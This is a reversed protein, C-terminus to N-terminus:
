NRQATIHQATARMITSTKAESVYGPEVVSREKSGSPCYYEAGGCVQQRARTSGEGCFYGEECVGECDGAAGVGGFKGAPCFECNFDALSKGNRGGPVSFKGAPCGLALSAHGQNQTDTVNSRMDKDSYVGPGFCGIVYPFQTQTFYAYSGDDTYKGGCSDLGTHEEGDEDFPSYIPYGDLAFGVVFPAGPLSKIPKTISTESM